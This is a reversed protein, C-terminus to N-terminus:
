LRGNHISPSPFIHAPLRFHATLRQHHPVGLMRSPKEGMASCACSKRMAMASGTERGEKIWSYASLSYENYAAILTPSSVFSMMSTSPRSLLTLLM